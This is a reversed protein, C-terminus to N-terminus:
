QVLLLAQEYDSMAKTAAEQPTALGEWVSRYMTEAPAWFSAMEPISPMPESFQAQELVGMVYADDSLGDIVTPDQLAPIAGRVKYLIELGEDSIMYELVQRAEDPHQTYASISAIINGSFTLPQVGNITPITTIGWEFDATNKIESIAWPGVIVYPVTGKGFEVEVTDTTLDAYPVPLYEQMSKFYELGAIAEESDFNIANPDTHDAGFLQYGNATLFFQMTYANGAEFRMIFKNEAANNFVDGQAKVEEFTTAVDFGNEELLTKNYFLAISETSIPVGYYQDGSKATEVASEIFRSKVNESLSSGLPLLINGQISQAMTDHPQLFIDPGVGAPGELELKTRSQTSEVREWVIDINSYKAEIAEELAEAYNDYDLWLKIEVKDGSTSDTTTEPKVETNSSSDTPTESKTENGSSCGALGAAALTAAFLLSTVKKM